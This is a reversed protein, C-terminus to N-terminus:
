MPFASRVLHRRCGAPPRPSARANTMAQKLRGEPGGNGHQEARMRRAGTERPPAIAAGADTGAQKLASRQTRPRQRAAIPRRRSAALEGGRSKEEQVSWRM